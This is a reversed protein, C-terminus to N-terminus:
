YHRVEIDDDEQEKAGQTWANIIVTILIGVGIIAVAITVWPAAFRLLTEVFDWFQALNEPTAFTINM